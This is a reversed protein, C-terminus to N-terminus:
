EIRHKWPKSTSAWYKSPRKGSGVEIFVLGRRVLRTMRFHVAQRTMGFKLCLENTSVGKGRTVFELIEWDTYKSRYKGM